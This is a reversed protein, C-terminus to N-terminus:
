RPVPVAPITSNSLPASLGEPCVYWAKKVDSREYALGRIIQGRKETDLRGIKPASLTASEEHSEFIWTNKIGEIEKWNQPNGGTQYVVESITTPCASNLRTSDPTSSSSMSDCGTVGSVTIGAFLMRVGIYAPNRFIRKVPNSTNERSEIM